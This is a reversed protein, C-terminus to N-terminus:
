SISSLICPKVYYDCFNNATYIFICVYTPGNSKCPKINTNKGATTQRVLYTQQDKVLVRCSQFPFNEKHLLLFHECFSSFCMLQILLATISSPTGVQDTLLASALNSLVIINNHLYLLKRQDHMYM